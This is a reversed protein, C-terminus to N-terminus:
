QTHISEAIFQCMKTCSHKRKFQCKKTCSHKEVRVPTGAMAVEAGGSGLRSPAACGWGAITNLGESHTSQQKPSDPTGSPRNPGQTSQMHLETIWSPSCVCVQSYHEARGESDTSQMPSGPTLIMRLNPLNVPVSCM